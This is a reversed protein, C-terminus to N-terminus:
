SPVASKDGLSERQAYSVLRSRFSISRFRVVCFYMRPGRKANGVRIQRLKLLTLLELHDVAEEGEPVSEHVGPRALEVLDLGSRRALASSLAV